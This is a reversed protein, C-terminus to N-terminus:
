RLVIKITGLNSEPGVYMRAARIDSGIVKGALSRLVQALLDENIRYQEGRMM